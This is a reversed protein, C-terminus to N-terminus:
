GSVMELYLSRRRPSLALVDAERWGYARALADVEQLLRRARRTVDAWLVTLVDFLVTWCHACAPCTLAITTEAGADAQAMADALGSAAEEPLDTARLREDAQAADLVCRELLTRGADEPACGEVAVLDRSDPLRYRVVLDGSRWEYAGSLAESGSAALERADLTCELDQACRPCRGAVPMKPGFTAARLALLRRDRAGIPLAALEGVPVAEAASLLLLARELPACASGQEWVRLVEEATLAGM